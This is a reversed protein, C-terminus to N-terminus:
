LIKSRGDKFFLLKQLLIFTFSNLRSCSKSEIPLWFFFFISITAVVILGKGGGERLKTSGQFKERAILSAALFFDEVLPRAMLLAPPPRLPQAM